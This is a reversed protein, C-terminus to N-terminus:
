TVEPGILPRSFFQIRHCLCVSPCPSEIVSDAWHPRNLSFLGTSPGLGGASSPIIQNLNFRSPICIVLLPIVYFLCMGACEVEIGQQWDSFAQGYYAWKDGVDSPCHPIGAGGPLGRFNSKIFGM